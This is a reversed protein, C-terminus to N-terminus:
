IIFKGFTMIILLQFLASYNKGFGCLFTVSEIFVEMVGLEKCFKVNIIESMTIYVNVLM